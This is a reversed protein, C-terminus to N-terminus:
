LFLFWSRRFRTHPVSLFGDPKMALATAMNAVGPVGYKSTAQALRQADTEVIAAISVQSNTAESIKKLAAIRESGILGTGVVIVKM